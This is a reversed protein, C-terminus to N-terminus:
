NTASRRVDTKTLRASLWGIHLKRQKAVIFASYLLICVLLTISAAEENAMAAIGPAAVLMLYLVLARNPQMHDLLMHHFHNRDATFPSQGKLTRLFMLRVCDLVPLWFWYVPVQAAMEGDGLRYAAIAGFGVFLSAAYAGSSGTFLRGRLNFAFAILSSAILFVFPLGAESGMYHIIFASWLMISGLLQGNMGDAMNASNVFGLMMLVVFPAALINPVTVSLALGFIKFALTHLVFLPDILLVAVITTTLLGVRLVASLEHRDDLLGIVFAALTAALAFLMTPPLPLRVYCVFSAALAPVLIAPGGMLPTAKVHLRRESDPEDIVGIFRGIPAAWFCIVGTITASAACVALINWTTSSM